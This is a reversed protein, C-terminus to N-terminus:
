ATAKQQLLKAVVLGALFGGIHAGHAVGSGGGSFLFPLVNDIILYFGLVLRAPVSIVDIFVFWVMLLRVRNRPFWVFYCGLIGSIAGSAGVLPLMSDLQFLAFFLTAVIGTVFYTVLYGLRGLYGEVNRGFIWLFLMNGALHLFGAHLFLSTVLDLLRPAGPKFGHEFVFVDYASLERLLGRVPIGRERAFYRLYQLTFTDSPDAAQQTLPLSIWVFVAVNIAILAYTIWPTSRPKRDDGIPLFM